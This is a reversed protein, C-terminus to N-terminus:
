HYHPQYRARIHRYPVVVTPRQNHLYADRDLQTLIQKFAVAWRFYTSFTLTEVYCFRPLSNAVRLSLLPGLLCNLYLRPLPLLNLTLFFSLVTLHRASPIEVRTQLGVVVACWHTRFLLYSKLNPLKAIQLTSPVLLMAM